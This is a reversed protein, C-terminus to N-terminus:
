SQGRAEEITELGSSSAIVDFRVEPPEKAMEIVLLINRYIESRLHNLAYDANAWFQEFMITHEEDVGRYVRCSLCGTEFRIQESISCLIELAESEKELPILMRISSRVMKVGKLIKPNISAPGNRTHGFVM